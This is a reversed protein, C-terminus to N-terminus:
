GGIAVYYYVMSLVNMQGQANNVSYWSLSNQVSDIYNNASASGQSQISYNKQGPTWLMFNTCYNSNITLGRPFYNDGAYTACQVMFLKPESPFTLVNPNASGYVGTGMYSGSLAWSRNGLKGLSNYLYGDSIPYANPNTSNVYSHVTRKNTPAGYKTCVSVFVQLGAGNPTTFVAEPPFYMLPPYNNVLCYKGKLPDGTAVNNTTFGLTSPNVLQFKLGNTDSIVTFSDAYYIPFTTPNSNQLLLYNNYVAKTGDPHTTYKEWIYENGLGTQLRLLPAMAQQEVATAAGIQAATVGHPNDTRVTHAVFNAQVAAASGAPDAGIQAPTHTHTAAAKGALAAYLSKFEADINTEAWHAANWDEAVTIPTTCKYLTGDHTCYDGVSYATGDDYEQASRAAAIAADLQEFNYNLDAVDAYDTGAPLRLGLNSTNDM